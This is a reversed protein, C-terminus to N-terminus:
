SSNKKKFQFWYRTGIGNEQSAEPQTSPLSFFQFEPKRSNPFPSYDWLPPPFVTNTHDEQLLQARETAGLNESQQTLKTFTKAQAAM